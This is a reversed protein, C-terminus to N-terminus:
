GDLLDQKLVGNQLWRTLLNSVSTFDARCWWKGIKLHFRSLNLQFFEAKTVDSIELSNILVDVGSSLYETLLICM